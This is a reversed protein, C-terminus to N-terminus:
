GADHTGTDSDPGPEALEVDEDDEAAMIEAMAGPALASLDVANGSEDTIAAKELVGALAKNRRVDAVLAPLNGGQVVQNAFEQPPMQYRAAQRVLYETLEGDSIQVDTAEAIADLVFQARVSQEADARLEADWEDRTKGQITLYRELLDDDHGLSHVIEHERFEVEANVASDPLPFEVSELLKELV